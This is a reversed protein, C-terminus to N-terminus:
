ELEGRTNAFQDQRELNPFRKITIRYIENTTFPERHVEADEIFNEFLLLKWYGNELCIAAYQPLTKSTGTSSFTAIM